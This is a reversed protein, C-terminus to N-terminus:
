KFKFLATHSSGDNLKVVLQRCTGAWASNTKWVYHYRDSSAEYALSSSGATVTEEIDSIPASTSCAIQQSAPYDAAFIALGKNGSLSFKVPIARGANVQNLTPPNEVPAFFGTFNYLVTVDFSCSSSNGSDDTATATVTTTGVPFISGPAHSLAVAPAADCSDGATVAFSVPMSVATSNLPLYVTIDPPCAIVPPTTDVVNVTRTVATAANGADDTATYTITYTGPTNVDVAGSATVPVNTDCNDAATAGPDAFSTHCEVTLLNAGNLTIVPRTTDVVTIVQADTATRGSTDTATFTRTIVLPSAPSGAGGNTTESVSVNVTGCNDAATAQSPSAAPVQTICEYTADAPATVTPAIGDIVKLTQTVSASNAGDTVTTVVTYVTGVLFVNDPAPPSVTRTVDVSACSGGVNTNLVAGLDDIEVSCGAAGPKIPVNVVPAGTITLAGSGATVIVTQNQTVTTGGANTYNWRITYTGPEDFSRPDDTTGGIKGACSDTATPIVSAVASCEGTITPLTAVDPTITCAGQRATVTVTFTCSASNGSADTATATVTNAGLPLPAGAPPDFTVQVNADNDSVTPAPFNVVAEGSGPTSEQVSFDAPCSITPTRTDNVVVRFREIATQAANSCTVFTEGVPFFAGSPPDCTVTGCNGETTPAGYTVVAGGQAQGNVVANDVTIDQPTTITCQPQAAVVYSAASTNDPQHRETTTSVATATNTIETDAPAAGSILYVATFTASEGPQLSAVSCVSTGSPGTGVEPNVCSFSSGTPPALSFFTTHDPVPVRLEFNEAPDPGKNEVSILFPAQAGAPVREQRQEQTTLVSLDVAANNPQRVTFGAAARESSDFLSAVVVRWGGRNDVVTEGFTTTADSPITFSDTQTLSAIPTSSVQMGAPNIWSFKRLPIVPFFESGGVAVDTARACVVDGLNFSTKPTLCDAAFTAVAEVPLDPTFAALPPAATLSYELGTAGAAPSALRIRATAGRRAEGAETSSLHPRDSSTSGGLGARSPTRSASTS